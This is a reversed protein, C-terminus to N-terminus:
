LDKQIYRIILWRTSDNNVEGGMRPMKYNKSLFAKYYLEGAKKNKCETLDPIDENFSRAKIGNGWGEKGHCSSCKVNFEKKGISRPDNYIPNDM